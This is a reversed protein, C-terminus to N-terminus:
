IAEVLMNDILRVEGVFGAILLISQGFGSVKDLATLTEADALEFYELRVSTEMLCMARVQEQVFKFDKGNSLEAKAFILAKNFVLAAKRDNSNLRLNRSSMALGDSERLTPFCILEINFNLEEVLRSIIKFQQFDKQGFYARTPKVINFLKSVILAVGSFHGPRFKGEFVKDLRGFDFTITSPKQYMETREPYFLVDCGVSRLNSIDQEGTRPYKDLDSQNNFQTPNVFICCVTISNGKKSANVLELHGQHLAGMTPVLGISHDQTRKDQLYITLSKIEKFILM